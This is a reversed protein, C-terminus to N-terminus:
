SARMLGRPGYTGPGNENKMAAAFVPSRLLAFLEPTQTRSHFGNSLTTPLLTLNNVGLTRMEPLAQLNQRSGVPLQAIRGALYRALHDVPERDFRGERLMNDIRSILMMYDGPSNDELDPNIGESPKIGKLGDRDSEQNKSLVDSHQTFVSSNISKNFAPTLAQM